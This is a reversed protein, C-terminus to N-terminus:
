NDFISIMVHIQEPLSVGSFMQKRGKTYEFFFPSMPEFKQQLIEKGYVSIKRFPQFWVDQSHPKSPTHSPTFGGRFMETSSVLLFNHNYGIETPFALM